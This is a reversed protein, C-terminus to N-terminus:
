IGNGNFAIIELAYLSVYANRNMLSLAINTIAM